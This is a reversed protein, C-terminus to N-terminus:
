VIVMRIVPMAFADLVGLQLFMCSEYRHGVCRVGDPDDQKVIVLDDAASDGVEDVAV